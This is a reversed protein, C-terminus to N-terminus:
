SLISKGWFTLCLRALVVDDAGLTLFQGKGVAPVEHRWIAEMCLFGAVVADEIGGLLLIAAVLAKGIGNAQWKGHAMLFEQIGDLGVIVNVQIDHLIVVSLLIGEHERVIRARRFSM